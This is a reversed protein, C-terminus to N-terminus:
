PLFARANIDRQNGLYFDARSSWWYNRLSFFCYSSAVGIGVGVGLLALKKWVGPGGGGGETEMAKVCCGGTQKWSFTFSTKVSPLPHLVLGSEPISETPNADSRANPSNAEIAIRRNAIVQELPACFHKVTHYRGVRLEKNVKKRERGLSRTGQV